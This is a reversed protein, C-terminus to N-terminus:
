IILTAAHRITAHTCLMKAKAQISAKSIPFALGIRRIICLAMMLIAELYGTDTRTKEERGNGAGLKMTLRTAATGTAGTDGKDGKYQDGDWIPAGGAPDSSGGDWIGNAM